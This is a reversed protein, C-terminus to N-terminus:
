RPSIQLVLCIKLTTFSKRFTATDAFLRSVKQQTFNTDDYDIEPYWRSNLMVFMNTLNCYQFNVPQTGPKL